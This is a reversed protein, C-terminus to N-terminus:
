VKSRQAADYAAVPCGDHHTYYGTQLTVRETQHCIPCYGDRAIGSRIAEVVARARDREREVKKLETLTDQAQLHWHNLEERLRDQHALDGAALAIEESM